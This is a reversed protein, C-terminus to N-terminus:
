EVETDDIPFAKETIVGAVNKDWKDVHEGLSPKFTVSYGYVGFDGEADSITLTAVETDNLSPDTIILKNDQKVFDLTRDIGSETTFTFTIKM